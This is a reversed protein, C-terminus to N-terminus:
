DDHDSGPALLASTSLRSSNLIKDVKEPIGRVNKFNPNASLYTNVGADSSDSTAESIIGIDTKHYGRTERVLTAKDRGGEGVYTVAEAEKLNQIPNIDETLKVSPDTTINSWVAYPNLEIQSRGRISRSKFARVAHALEKYVAGAFREYGRIRMYDMDQFDPNNYITLMEVAKYFLGIYTLPMHMEELVSKTIPDIFLDNSNDIEKLYISGLNQEELINMYVEQSNFLEAEYKDIYKGYAKFGGMILSAEKDKRSFIYVKDKFSFSWHDNETIKGSGRVKDIVKYEVNLSKLLVDFGLLYGLIIAIPITKAFIRVSAFDVPAEYENLGLITYINGALTEVGNDLMYFLNDKKVFIIKKLKRTIGCVMGGTSEIEKLIKPDVNNIRWEKSFNLDFTTAQISIFMDSMANFIWPADLYGNYVNGPYIREILNKEGSNIITNLQKFIWQIHDNRTYESCQIFTKGYYSSLAVVNPKIKRIPLDVRQKRLSYKNNNNIFTADETIVPLKFRVTSSKGSIPRMKIEHYEYEGLITKDKIIKYDEIIIGASQMHTVMSKIDKSMVKSVYTKDYAKISSNLMSKDEVNITNDLVTDEKNILIDEKTVTISNALLASPNNPDPITNFKEIDKVAKRYDSASMIGYGAYEELQSKLLELDPRPTNIEKMVQEATKVVAVEITALTTKSGDSNKAVIISKDEEEGDLVVKKNLLNQKELYELDDLEKDLINMLKDFDSSDSLKLLEDNSDGISDHQTKLTTYKMESKVIGIPINSLGEENDGHDNEIPEIATGDDTVARNEPNENEAIDEMIDEALPHSQSILQMIYKLFLKQMILGSYHVMNPIPEKDPSERWQDLYKLNIVSWKGNHTFVINVKDLANEPIVSLLSNARHIPDLWKWMELIFMKGPTDFLKLINKNLKITFLKLSSISPLVDPLTYFIYQERNSVNAIETVKNWLTKETNLWKYYQAMPTAVYKYLVNLYAHNIVILSYPDKNVLEANKVYKYQKHSNIFPKILQLIAAQKHRPNGELSSLSLMYEITIRKNYNTLYINNIDPDLMAGDYSVYHFLANRSFHLMDMGYVLPSVLQQARRVGYQKYFIAYQLLM